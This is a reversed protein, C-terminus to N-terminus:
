GLNREFLRRFELHNPKEYVEVEDCGEFGGFTDEFIKKVKIKDEAFIKKMEETWKSPDSYVPHENYTDNYVM